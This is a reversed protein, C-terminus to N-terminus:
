LKSNDIILHTRGIKNELINGAAGCFEGSCGMGSIESKAVDTLVTKHYNMKWPWTNATAGSYFLVQQAAGDM